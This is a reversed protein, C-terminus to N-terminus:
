GGAGECCKLGFLYIHFNFVFHSNFENRSFGSIGPFSYCIVVLCIDGISIFCYSFCLV